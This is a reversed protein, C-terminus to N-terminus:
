VGDSEGRPLSKDVTRHAEQLLEEVEDEDADNLELRQERANLLERVLLTAAAAVGAGATTLLGVQVFLSAGMRTGLVLTFASGLAIWSSPGRRGRFGLWLGRALASAGLIALVIDTM